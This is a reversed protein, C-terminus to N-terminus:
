AAAKVQSSVSAPRPKSRKGPKVRRRTKAEKVERWKERNAYARPLPDAFMAHYHFLEESGIPSWTDRVEPREALLSWGVICDLQAAMVAALRQERRTLSPSTAMEGWMDVLWLMYMRVGDREAPPIAKQNTERKMEDDGSQNEVRGVDSRKIYVLGSAPALFFLM